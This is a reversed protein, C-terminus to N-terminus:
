SVTMNHGAPLLKEGTRESALKQETQDDHGGRGLARHSGMGHKLGTQVLWWNVPYAIVAGVTLAVSMIGWFHFGTPAMGLPDRTMLVVMVPILGAMLANMSLWEPLITRRVATLYDGGLMDKLFLAQFVLLGFAFGAVYEV